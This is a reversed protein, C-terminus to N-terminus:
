RSSSGQLASCGDLKERLADGAFERIDQWRFSKRGSFSFLNEFLSEQSEDFSGSCLVAGSPADLLKYEFALSVPEKVSYRTGRRESYRSLRMSLVADKDMEEAVMVGLALRPGTREGIYSEFQQEDLLTVNPLKHDALYTMLLEDMVLAGQRLEELKEETLESKVSPVPDTSLVLLSALPSEEAQGSAPQRTTPLCSASAFLFLCLIATYFLSHRQM